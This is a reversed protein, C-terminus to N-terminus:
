RHNNKKMSPLDDVLLKVILNAEHAACIAVRPAMLGHGPAAEQTGDGCLYFHETIKRTKIENSDGYGAMGSAAVIYKKPCNELLTNILMAKAQPNDFAECVITDDTFLEVANEATVRQSDIRISIFPNIAKLQAALAETKRKGLDSIFYSQRNLNSADVTDFDILHLSGIGTRALYVAVNSGLGGLGAIAVAGCKVREHVKPTHRACLMSELAEQPPLTNKEIFYLEDGAQVDVDETLAYGNLITVAEPSAYQRRIEHLTTCSTERLFGNIRLKM